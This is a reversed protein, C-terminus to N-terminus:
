LHRALWFSAQVLRFALYCALVAAVVLWGRPIRRSPRETGEPSTRM